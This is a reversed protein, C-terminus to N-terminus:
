HRQPSDAEQSAAKVFSKIGEFIGRVIKKQFVPDRLKMEEEPLMIYAAEILVSPMYTTRPVALNGYYFGDNFLGTRELLERHIERGLDASHPHYYYVGLGRRSYPNVGDAMANHHISVFIDAGWGDAMEMRDYLGATVDATRTMLVEAGKKELLNKLQMALTLNIEKEALRTPGIAGFQDGGHGADVAVKFGKLSLEPPKFVIFVFNGAEDFEAKYGWLRPSDFFITLSLTQPDVQEWRLERIYETRNRIVDIHSELGYLHLELRSPDTGEIVRHVPFSECPITVRVEGAHDDALVKFVRKVPQIEIEPREEVFRDEVWVTENDSLQVQYFNDQSGIATCSAGKVPFLYYVGYNASYRMVTHASVTEVMVPFDTEISGPTTEPYLEFPVIVEAEETGSCATVRFNNNDYDVPVWAIFAGNAYVEAGVGNVMVPCTVPKVSGFVFTSDVRGIRPPNGEGDFRPYVVDIVIQAASMMTVTLLLILVVLLRM